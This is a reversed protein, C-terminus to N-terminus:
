QIKEISVTEDQKTESDIIRVSHPVFLYKGDEEHVINGIFGYNAWVPAQQQSHHFLAYAKSNEKIQDPFPFRVKLDEIEFDVIPYIDPNENEDTITLAFTTTRKLYETVLSKVLSM